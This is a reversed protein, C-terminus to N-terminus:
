CNCSIEDASCIEKLKEYIEVATAWEESEMSNLMGVYLGYVELYAENCKGCMVSQLFEYRMRNICNQVTSDVMLGASTIFWGPQTALAVYDTGADYVPASAFPVGILYFQYLGKTVNGDEDVPLSFPYVYPVDSEENQNDPGLTIDSVSRIKYMTWLYLESRKPRDPDNSASEPNYGTPNTTANYTGTGDALDIQTQATNLTLTGWRLVLDSPAKPDPTVFFADQRNTTLFIPATGNTVLFADQRNGTLFVNSEGKTVFFSDARQGSQFIPVSGTTNLFATKKGSTVFFAVKAM